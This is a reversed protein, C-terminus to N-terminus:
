SIEIPYGITVYKKNTLTASRINKMVFNKLHSDPVDRAFLVKRLGVRLKRYRYSMPCVTYRKVEGTTIKKYIIVIQVRRIAGERIVLRYDRIKNLDIKPKFPKKAKDINKKIFELNKKARDSPLIRPM